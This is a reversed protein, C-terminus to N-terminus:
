SVVMGRYLGQRELEWDEDEDEDEDEGASSSSQGGSPEVEEPVSLLSEVRSPSILRGKTSSGEGCQTSGYSQTPTPESLSLPSTIDLLPRLRDTDEPHDELTPKTKRPHSRWNSWPVPTASVAHTSMTPSFSVIKPSLKYESILSIFGLRKPPPSM